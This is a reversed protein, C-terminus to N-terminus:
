AEYIIMRSESFVYARNRLDCEARQIPEVFAAAAIRHTIGPVTTRQTHPRIAEAIIYCYQLLIEVCVLPRTSSALPAEDHVLQM